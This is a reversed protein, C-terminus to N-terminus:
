CTHPATRGRSILLLAPAATQGPSHRITSSSHLLGENKQTFNGRVYHLCEQRRLWVAAARSRDSPDPNMFAAASTSTVIARCMPYASIGVAMCPRKKPELPTQISCGSSRVISLAGLIQIRGDWRLICRTSGSSNETSTGHFGSATPSTCRACRIKSTTAGVLIENGDRRESMVSSLKSWLPTGASSM